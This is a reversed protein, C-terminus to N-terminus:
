VVRDSERVMLDDVKVRKAVESKGGMEHIKLDNDGESSRASLM